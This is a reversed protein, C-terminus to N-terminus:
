AKFVSACACDKYVHYKCLPWAYRRVSNVCYWCYRKKLCEGIFILRYNVLIKFSKQKNRRLLLMNEVYVDLIYLWNINNLTFTIFCLIMFWSIVSLKAYLLTAWLKIFMILNWIVKYELSLQETKYVHNFFRNLCMNKINKKKHSISEISLLKTTYMYPKSFFLRLPFFNTISYLIYWQNHSMLLFLFLHVLIVLIFSLNSLNFLKDCM